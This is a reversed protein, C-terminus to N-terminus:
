QIKRLSQVSTSDAYYTVEIKDGEELQPFNKVDSWTAPFYGDKTVLVRAKHNSTGRLVQTFTTEIKRTVQEASM